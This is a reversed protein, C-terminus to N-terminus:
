TPHPTGRRAAVWSGGVAESRGVGRVEREREGGVREEGGWLTVRWTTVSRTVEGVKAVEM